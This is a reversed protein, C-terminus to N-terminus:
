ESLMRQKRAEYVETKRNWRQATESDKRHDEIGCQDALIDAFYASLKEAGFVNLHLGRDYTDKDWDIGIEEQHELFNIYLLDNKEAYDEIQEEWEDYWVPSLSPAKVLVLRIGNQECLTKIKDLYNWANEGFSYDVLPRKPFEGLVPNVKVQMLYGNDTVQDRRFLYTLDEAKLSTIRDHYRLIPLVYSALADKEKEEKTLSERISELKWKSWKMGDFNMRNYAERTEQDGTSEPSDYIMELVNFVMVKPKEYQLMEELFYYSQWILQQASGRIVSTIGKRNWMAVPSINEYLECDGVMIVDNGGHNEENYYEAVMAGEPTESMYKPMLLFQLFVLLLIVILVPILIKLWVRKKMTDVVILEDQEAPNRGFPGSGQRRRLM